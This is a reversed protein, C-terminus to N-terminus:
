GVLHVKPDVVVDKVADERKDNYSKKLADLWSQTEDRNLTAFNFTRGKATVYFQVATIAVYTLMRALTCALAAPPTRWSVLAARAM